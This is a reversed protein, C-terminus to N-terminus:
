DEEEDTLESLQDHLGEVDPVNTPAAWEWQEQENIPLPFIHQVTHQVFDQQVQVSQQHTQQGFGAFPPATWGEGMPPQPNLSQVPVDVTPKGGRRSRQYVVLCLLVVIGFLTLVAIAGWGSSNGSSKSSPNQDNIAEEFEDGTMTPSEPSANGSVNENFEIRTEYEGDRDNDIEVQFEAIHNADITEWDFTWQHVEGEKVPIDKMILSDAVEDDADLLIIDLGYVGDDTGILEVRDIVVGNAEANLIIVAESEEDYYSDPIQEFVTGDKVGTMRGMDDYVRLEVPSHVLYMDCDFYANYFIHIIECISPSGIVWLNYTIDLDLAGIRSDRGFLPQRIEEDPELYWPQSWPPLCQHNGNQGESLCSAPDTSLGPDNLADTVSYHQDDAENGISGPVESLAPNVEVESIIDSIPTFTFDSSDLNWGNKNAYGYSDNCKVMGHGNWETAACIDEGAALTWTNHGYHQSMAAYTPELTTSDVWVFVWEFDHEHVGVANSWPRSFTYYYWYEIVFFDDYDVINYYAHPGGATPISGQNSSCDTPHKTGARLEEYNEENNRVDDDDFFIDVPRYCDRSDMLLTPAFMEVLQADTYGTFPTGTISLTYTGKNTGYGHVQIFYQGADLSEIQLRSAASTGGDDDYGIEDGSSSYLYLVSDTLTGLTVDIEVDDWREDLQFRFYDRDGMVEIEGPFPGLIPNIITSTAFENGHDDSGGGSSTDVNGSFTWQYTGTESSYGEVMVYYTGSDLSTVHILSSLGGGSSDDNQAIETGDDTYLTLISDGLTLLQVELDVDTWDDRLFFVFYDQDDSEEIEGDHPNDTPNVATADNIGDGHDDDSSGGGGDPASIQVTGGV